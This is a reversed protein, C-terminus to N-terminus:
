RLFLTGQLCLPGDKTADYAGEDILKTDNKIKSQKFRDKNILPYAYPINRLLFVIIYYIIFLISKQCM